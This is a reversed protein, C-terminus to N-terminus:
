LRMSGECFSCVESPLLPGKFFKKQRVFEEAFKDDKGVRGKKRGSSKESSTVTPSDPESTDAVQGLLAIDENDEVELLDDGDALPGKM